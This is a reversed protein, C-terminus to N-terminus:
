PAEKLRRPVGALACAASLLGLGVLAWPLVALGSVGVGSTIRDLDGLDDYNDLNDNLAGVLTALDSSVRPWQEVLAGVAAQAGGTGLDRFGTDIEGVATVLVVFDLQLTRVQSPTMVPELTNLM